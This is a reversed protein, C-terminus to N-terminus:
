QETRKTPCLYYVSGYSCDRREEGGREARAENTKHKMVSHSRFPVYRQHTIVVRWWGETMEEVVRECLFVGLYVRNERLAAMTEVSVKLLSEESM